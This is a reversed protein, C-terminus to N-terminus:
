QAQVDYAFLQDDHRLYLRGGCVVPHAWAPGEGGQPIKFQSVVVHGTPTAKVLGMTRRESLTYLMGEVCVLSGPGVGKEAHSMKGTKWDLCAWRANNSQHSNGYVYGNLLVVGGHRNDLDKTHWVPEVAAKRGDVNIKLLASGKGYGGSVFVHGDHYIPTVCNAVYRPTYHEFRWLLDGTDANVGIVSKQSMTLIIRLGGYEFVIPSAYGAPEGASGSKWVTQGTKKDLAAMAIAGGPCCLVHQGDILLSEARGYGGKKGSFESKINLDWITKGTKADLCLVQDHANEHYLRDGDITPTARAGDPGTGTWAEGNKVQWQIRGDMDMATIVNAGDVDGATYISGEAITVSAFGHGIGKATWLLKPGQEPWEKLLGTETSISDGKPGHFRPWSPPDAAALPYSNSSFGILFLLSILPLAPKHATPM